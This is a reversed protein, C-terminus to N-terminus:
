ALAQRFERRVTEDLMEAYCSETTRTDAHGLLKSVVEIRVGRNLLDSGFTRRLTHCSVSTLAPKPLPRVNARHAVRKVLRWAFATQMPTGNRTALLYRGPARQSMWVELEIRLEPAIPVTRLGSDTKSARVRLEENELDVDAALLGCAESVRLGGHRLLAVVIREQPTVCARLVAADEDPRLWDNPKRRRKPLKLRAAPNPGDLLDRDELYGYFKRLAATKVRLSGPEVDLSDLYLELEARTCTRPDPHVAMLQSVHGAYRTRTGDTIGERRLAARFGEALFHTTVNL